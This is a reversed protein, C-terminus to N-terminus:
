SWVASLSGYQRLIKIQSMLENRYDNVMQKQNQQRFKQKRAIIISFWDMLRVKVIRVHFKLIRRIVNYWHTPLRLRKETDDCEDEYDFRGSLLYAEDFLICDTQNFIQFAKTDKERLPVKRNLLLWLKKNKLTKHKEMAQNELNFCCWNICNELFRRWHIILNSKPFNYQNYNLVECANELFMVKLEEESDCEQDTKKRQSIESSFTLRNESDLLSQLEKETHVNEVCNWDNKM